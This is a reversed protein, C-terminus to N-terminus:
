KIWNVMQLHASRLAFALQCILFYLDWIGPTLYTPRLIESKPPCLGSTLLVSYSHNDSKTRPAFRSWPSPQLPFFFFEFLLLLKDFGQLLFAMSGYLIELSLPLHTAQHM